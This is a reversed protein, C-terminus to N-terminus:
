QLSREALATPEVRGRKPRHAAEPTEAVVTLRGPWRQCRIRYDNPLPPTSPRRRRASARRTVATPLTRTRTNPGADISPAPANAGRSRWTNAASTTSAPRTHWASRNASANYPDDGGAVHRLTTCVLM